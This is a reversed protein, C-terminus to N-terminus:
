QFGKLIVRFDHFTEAYDRCSSLGHCILGNDIFVSPTGTGCFAFFPEASFGLRITEEDTLVGICAQNFFISM